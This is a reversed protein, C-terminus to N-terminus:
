RKKSHLSSPRLLADSRLQGSLLREIAVFFGTKGPLGAKKNAGM